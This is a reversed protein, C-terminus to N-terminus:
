LLDFCLSKFVYKVNFDRTIEKMNLVISLSLKSHVVSKRACNVCISKLHGHMEILYECYQQWSNFGMGHVKCIPKCKLRRGLRYDKIKFVSVQKKLSDKNPNSKKGKKARPKKEKVPQKGKSPSQLIKTGEGETKVNHITKTDIPIPQTKQPKTRTDKGNGYMPSSIKCLLEIHVQQLEVETPKRRIPIMGGKIYFVFFLSYIIYM